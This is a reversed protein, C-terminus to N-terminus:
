KPWKIESINRAGLSSCGSCKPSVINKERNGEGKESLLKGGVGKEKDCKYVTGCELFVKATVKM